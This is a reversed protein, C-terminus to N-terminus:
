CCVISYWILVLRGYKSGIGHSTWTLCLGICQGTRYCHICHRKEKCSTQCLIKLKFTCLCSKKKLNKPLFRFRITGFSQLFLNKLNYKIRGLYEVKLCKRTHEALSSIWKAYAWHAIFNRGRISLTCYFKNWTHEAQITFTFVTCMKGSASCAHFNTGRISLTRYFRKGM